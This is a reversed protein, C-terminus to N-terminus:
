ATPFHAERYEPWGIRRFAALTGSRDQVIVVNAIDIRTQDARLEDDWRGGVLRPQTEPLPQAVLRTVRGRHFDPHHTPIPGSQRWRCDSVVPGPSPSGEGQAGKRPLPHLESEMELRVIIALKARAPKDVIDGHLDPGA